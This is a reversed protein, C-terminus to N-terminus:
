SGHFATIGSTTPVFAHNGDIVVSTFSALPGVPHSSQVHGTSLSLVKLADSNADVVFVRKGAIVPSGYIGGASWRWHLSHRGVSLMRIGGRCPMIVRNGIRAAGSFATCGSAQAIDGGVGGLSPKLLYVTGRKGAIVIRGNVPVPTSSGLDLDEANDQQWSAPAFAAVRHLSKPRLETVSDSKDWKGSTGAGNGSAVYLNGNRGVAVGAPSWMGAERPTPVAYHTMTGKGNVALSTVYGVYNGCDGYLGGYTTVIRGSTVLLASRQQEGTRDRSALVDTSRHWRRTGNKPNLAWLTHHGGSTEAVVFVSGTTADYAPTGTIGLPNINGQCPKGSAGQPTGLSTRWRQKGTRPSLGYVSDNETAAILTGNILLPEGYVAGDLHTTWAPHLRGKIAGTANGARDNTRHYTTWNTYHSTSGASATTTEANTVSSAAPAAGSTGSCAATLVIPAALLIVFRRM